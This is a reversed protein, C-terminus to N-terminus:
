EIRLSEVVKGCHDVTFVDAGGLRNVWKPVVEDACAQALANLYSDFLVWANGFGVEQGIAMFDVSKLANAAAERVDTLYEVEVEVDQRTGLRGLHGGVFTDFDYALIQDHAAYYGGVDEALALSKFPVWGPFVVDVVMLVRQKPAYIFINGPEHNVGHYDLQLTQTGVEVTYQDDFTVTPLPVPAGGIFMGFPYERDAGMAVALQDATAQHAIYVADKPYLGAAAIHDGHSHSYIVHTIPEDTVDGIAALINKGISPPADVVIVGEGTTLFMMVYSGDTVWYLGDAVEEVLYGKDSPIAPGVAADPLPAAQPPAVDGEAM